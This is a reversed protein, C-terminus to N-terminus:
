QSFKCDLGDIAGEPFKWRRTSQRLLFEVSSAFTHITRFIWARFLTTKRSPSSATWVTSPERLSSGDAVPHNCAFKRRHRSRCRLFSTQLLVIPPQRRQHACAQESRSRNTLIISISCEPALAQQRPHHAGTTPERPFQLPAQNSIDRVIDQKDLFNCLKSPTAHM